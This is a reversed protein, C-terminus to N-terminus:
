YYSVAVSKSNQYVLPSYFSWHNSKHKKRFRQYQKHIYLINSYHELPKFSYMSVMYQWYDTGTYLM